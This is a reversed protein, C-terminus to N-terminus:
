KFKLKDIDYVCVKSRIADPGRYPLVIRMVPDGKQLVSM